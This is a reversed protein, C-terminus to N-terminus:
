QPRATIATQGLAREDTSLEADGAPVLNKRMLFSVVDVYAEATLSGPATKPMSRSITNVLDGVSRGQWRAFFDPGKLVAAAEDGGGSLDAQHCEGCSRDYVDQGRAAQVPTYVGDWVTRPTSQAAAAAVVGAYVLVCVM